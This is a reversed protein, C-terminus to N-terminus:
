EGPFIHRILSRGRVFRSFVLRSRSRSDVLFALRIPIGHERWWLRGNGCDMLDLVSRAGALDPPLRRRIGIPLPGDFGFRPWTYYGNEYKGRGAVTEIRTIGLSGAHVLQRYFIRLGLGRRRMNHRHIHLAENILVPLSRVLRILQIGRYGNAGPKHLELYLDGRLTGVEVEADDPAGALGAYQWMHVPCRFVRWAVGEADSREGKYYAVRAWSRAPDINRSGHCSFSDHTTM